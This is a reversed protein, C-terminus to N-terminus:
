NNNGTIYKLRYIKLTNVNPTAELQDIIYKAAEMHGTENVIGSREFWLTAMSPYADKIDKFYGYIDILATRSENAM